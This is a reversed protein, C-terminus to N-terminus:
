EKGRNRIDSWDQGRMRKHAERTGPLGEDIYRHYDSTQEVFSQCRACRVADPRVRLRANPIPNGCKVCSRIVSSDNGADDSPEHDDFDTTADAQTEKIVDTRSRAVNTESLLIPTGAELCLSDGWAVTLLGAQYLRIVLALPTRELVSSLKSLSAADRTSESGTWTELLLRQDEDLWKRWRITRTKEPLLKPHEAGGNGDPANSVPGFHWGGDVAYERIVKKARDRESKLPSTILALLKAFESAASDILVPNSTDSSVRRSYGSVIAEAKKAHDYDDATHLEEPSTSQLDGYKGQRWHAKVGWVMQQAVNLQRAIESSPLGQRLLTVIADIQDRSRVKQFPRKFPQYRHGPM